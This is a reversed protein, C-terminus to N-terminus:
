MNIKDMVNELKARFVPYEQDHLMLKEKFHVFGIKPLINEGESSVAFAGMEKIDIGKEKLRKLEFPIDKILKSAYEKRRVDHIDVILTVFYLYVSRPNAYDLIFEGVESEELNGELVANYDKKSLPFLGYAGKVGASTKLVRYVSPNKFMIQKIYEPDVHWEKPYIRDNLSLMSEIDEVRATIVEEKLDNKYQNM